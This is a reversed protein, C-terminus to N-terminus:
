VGVIREFLDLFRGGFVQRLKSILVELLCGEETVLGFINLCDFSGTFAGGCVYCLRWFLSMEISM